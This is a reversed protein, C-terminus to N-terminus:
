TKFGMQSWSLALMRVIGIEFFVNLGLSAKHKSFYGPTGSSHNSDVNDPLHNQLNDQSTWPNQPSPRPGPDQSPEPPTSLRRTPTTHLNKFWFQPPPRPEPLPSIPTKMDGGGQLHIYNLSPSTQKGVVWGKTVNCCPLWHGLGRGEEAKGNRKGELGLSPSVLLVLLEAPTQLSM